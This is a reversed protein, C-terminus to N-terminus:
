PPGTTAQRQRWRQVHWTSRVIHQQQVVATRLPHAAQAQTHTPHGMDSAWTCAGHRIGMHIGMHTGSTGHQFTGIYIDLTGIFTWTGMDWTGHAMYWTGHVMYWTGHVMYWTGHVMAHMGHVMCAMHAHAHAHVMCALSWMHAHAHAHVMYWTGHAVYVYPVHSM